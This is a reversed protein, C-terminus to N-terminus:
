RISSRMIGCSRSTSVLPRLRRSIPGIEVGEVLWAVGRELSARVEARDEAACLAEVVVATEEVSVLLHRTPSPPPPAIDVGNDEIGCERRGGNGIRAAGAATPTRSAHAFLRRRAPGARDSCGASIAIPWCCGPRATSRTRTTPGISIASGSRSGPVTPANRAQRSLRLGHRSRSSTRELEDSRWRISCASDRTLSRVFRM